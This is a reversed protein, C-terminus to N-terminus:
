IDNMERFIFQPTYKTYETTITMFFSKFINMSQQRVEDIGKLVHREYRMSMGLM